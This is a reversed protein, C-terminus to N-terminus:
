PEGRIPRTDTRFPATPLGTDDTLNAGATDNIWAYRLSDPATVGPARVVVTDGEIIAEADVFPGGEPALMFLRPPKKDITRLSGTTRFSVAYADGSHTAERIAPGQSQVDRGYFRELAVLALRKGIDRKNAPHVDDSEGIETAVSLGVNPLTAATMSQAERVEAWGTDRANGAKWNPLQQVIFPVERGWAERWSTILLPLLSRYDYGRSFDAEGQYWLVGKLSFPALPHIMGCYLAGSTHAADGGPTKPRAARAQASLSPFRREVRIECADDVPAISKLGIDRFTRVLPPRDGLHTAFRFVLVNDGPKVNAAPVDFHTYAKYFAPAARGFDGLKKGNWYATVYQENVQGLDLRIGTGAKAAAVPIVKRIWAVGGDPLGLDSWKMTITGPSWGDGRGAASDGATPSPTADVRGNAQEWAALLTPFTAIEDPLRRLNDRQGAARAKFRPVTDLAAPSIWSEASTGGWASMILGVPVKQDTHIERAFYFGAATFAKVTAPSCTTWKVPVSAAPELAPERAVTGQRILPFVATVLDNAYEPKKELAAMTYAMNSQGSCLWVDGVVVDDFVIKNKGEIVLQQPTASATLEPLTAQWRGAADATATADAAGFTVRVHEGAAATGWVPVPIGRQLVMGASFLGNPVVDAPATGAFVALWVIAAAVGRAITMRTSMMMM